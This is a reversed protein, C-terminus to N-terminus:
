IYDYVEKIFQELATSRWDRPHFLEMKLWHFFVNYAASEPSCAKQSISRVLKTDNNRSLWGPWFYPASRDSHVIQQKKADTVTEIVVDLLKNVLEADSTAETSWGIVLGDFCDIVPSLYVKGAM